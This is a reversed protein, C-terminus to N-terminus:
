DGGVKCTGQYFAWEECFTEDSFQCFAFINGSTDKKVVRQGGQNLCYQVAPNAIKQDERKFLDNTFDPSNFLVFDFILFFAALSTLFLLQRM